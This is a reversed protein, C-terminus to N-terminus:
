VGKGWDVFDSFRKPAHHERVPYRRSRPSESMREAGAIEEGPNEMEMAPPQLEPREIGSPEPRSVSYGEPEPGFPSWSPTVRDLLQDVHRRHVQGDGTRVRYSLPGTVDTIVGPAWKNSDKTYSRMYVLDRPRFERVTGHGKAANLELKRLMDEGHDPHLRDLATTLRRNMLLEAPSKGTSSNPTIHQSLLFCALRTQWEGKTIRSLAEKTTQVMREAQGNSSPHYPATTVHRIGNRDAFEQFESSTFATGNDSVIVDPLGHTAFLLRLTNIVASSSMSSMLSVELWKSHADVVILFVKGQFPGAFDIHLRSWRKTTWEWPHVKAKTPAHRSMQCTRCAKVTEEIEGDMGPWWVYSRALGKMHVIGPHADHLMALVERRASSPVVVRSGWLVCNKHASLEHCRSIFPRFRSDPTEAPWGHLVWRLVRSMVPDKLTCSAIKEAHMPADPVMELLLVELPPPTVADPAPLPLRSLADANGMQKGPRYCLEYDYAGIILSWRLMRPSLIVPMPKSHHLLGLLPKHDTFIVFHRGALYQHFKRVAFVVALAEKDIQAYNRETTTMTRSAFCIPKEQGDRELHFLLAGLGYPSADCVVALPKKEDYHALVKDTQLLQKAQAYAMEHKAEWWWPVSQDLLRHLPELVTAKNPLFCSYFNLLGLFAQLETKNRPSPAKQIADVKECTPKIGDKDVHFGLFEVQNAAFISKEKKLRLGAEAFCKLVARLRANHEEVTKGSILIRGPVTPCRPHRRALYGYIVGGALKSFLESATPIPYVDPRVATNVTCRYDGCIRLGGDKKAVAVIPTAWKAHRVPEFIGQAVLKDLEEDLQPRLAFPVPCAKFFRPTVTSDIDISIPPMRCVGIDQFVEAYETLIEEMAQFQVRHVGEVSIGLADFWDRGLLSTGQGGIVFLPLTNQTGKFLVEVFIRGKVELTAQSWQKLVGSDAHM